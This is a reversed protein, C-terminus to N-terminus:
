GDHPEKIEYKDNDIKTMKAVTGGPLIVELDESLTAYRGMKAGALPDDVGVVVVLGHDNLLALRVSNAPITVEEECFEPVLRVQQVNWTHDFEGTSRETPAPGYVFCGEAFRALARVLPQQQGAWEIHQKIAQLREKNAETTKRGM